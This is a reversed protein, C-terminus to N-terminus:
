ALFAAVLLLDNWSRASFRALFFFVTAHDVALTWKGSGVDNWRTISVHLFVMQEPRSSTSWHLMDASYCENECINNCVYLFSVVKSDEPNLQQAGRRHGDGIVEFLHDKFRSVGLPCVAIHLLAPEMYILQTQFMFHSCVTITAELSAGSTDSQCGRDWQPPHWAHRHTLWCRMGIADAHTLARAPYVHIVPHRTATSM